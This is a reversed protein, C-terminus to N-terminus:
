PNFTVKLTKEIENGAQDRSKINFSNEGESLTTFLSFSGDNEVVVMRNNINVIADEETIGEIVIQRENAGFFQSGDQPKSITLEPASKDLIVTFKDSDASENGAQDVSKAQLTNEGDHLTFTYNFHGDSNAIVEDEKNNLELKVIAGAETQGSIEVKDDKTFGPLSDFRPPTPPTTDSVEIQTNTGRIETLFAAFKAISPIGFVFFLALLLITLFIFFVAKRINKKEEIRIRRSYQYPM